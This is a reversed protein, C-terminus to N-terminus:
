ESNLIRPAEQSLHDRVGLPRIRGSGSVVEKAPRDEQMGVM